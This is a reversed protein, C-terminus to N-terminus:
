KMAECYVARYRPGHHLDEDWCRSDGKRTDRVALYSSRMKLLCNPRSGLKFNERAGQMVEDSSSVAMQLKREKDAATRPHTEVHVEYYPLLMALVTPAHLARLPRNTRHSIHGDKRSGIDIANKTRPVFWGAASRQVQHPILAPCLELSIHAKSITIMITEHDVPSPSVEPM